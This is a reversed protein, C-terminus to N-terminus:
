INNNKRFNFVDRINKKQRQQTKETKKSSVDYKKLYDNLNKNNRSKNKEKLQHLLQQLSPPRDEVNVDEKEVISDMETRLIRISLAVSFVLLSLNLVNIFITVVVVPQYGEPIPRLIGNFHQELPSKCEIDDVLSAPTVVSMESPEVTSTKEDNVQQENLEKDNFVIQFVAYTMSIIEGVIALCALVIHTILQCKPLPYPQKGACIAFSGVVMIYISESWGVWFSFDHCFYPVSCVGLFVCCFALKTTLSGAKDLRRFKNRRNDSINMNEEDRNSILCAMKTEYM